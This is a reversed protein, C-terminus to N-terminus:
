PHQQIPIEDTTTTYDEEKANHTIKEFIDQKVKTITSVVEQIQNAGVKWDYVMRGTVMFVVIAGTVYMANTTITVFGAYAEPPLSYFHGAAWRWSLQVISIGFLSIVLRQSVAPKLPFM